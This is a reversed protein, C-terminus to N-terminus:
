AGFVIESDTGIVYRGRRSVVIDGDRMFSRDLPQWCGGGSEMAMRRGTIGNEQYLWVGTNRVPRWAFLSKLWRIM